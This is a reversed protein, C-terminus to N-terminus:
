GAEREEDKGNSKPEYSVRGEADALPDGWGFRKVTEGRTEIEASVKQELVGDVRDLLIRLAQTPDGEVGMRLAAKFWEQALVDVYLRNEPDGPFPTALLKKIALSLPKYGKPHGTPNPSTGRKWPKGGPPTFGKVFRGKPDRVDKVPAHEQDLPLPEHTSRPKLRRGSGM